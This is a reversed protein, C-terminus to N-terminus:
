QALRHIKEVGRERDALSRQLMRVSMEFNLRQQASIDPLTDLRSKAIGIQEQLFMRM